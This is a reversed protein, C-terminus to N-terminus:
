PIVWVNVHAPFSDAGKDTDPGKMDTVRLSFGLLRKTSVKPAVFTARPTNPDLLSVKNGQIQMWEYRILDGDPDVSRLGNLVVTSGAKVTLDPGADATPPRNSTEGNSRVLVELTGQKGGNTITISARGNGMVRVLGEANVSIVDENSSRYASRSSAGSIRRTIGDAYQGVVPVELIKGLTDLRWPKQVEFEIGSLEAPSSVNVIVEDFEEHGALRGRAVEGVALLRMTGVADPPVTLKGGYPPASTSTAVLALTAQQEVLPEDNIRYWYYRVRSIGADAGLDVVADVEQGAKLTAGEVPSNLMFAWAHGAALCFNILFVTLSRSLSRLM